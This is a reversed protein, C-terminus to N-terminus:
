TILLCYRGARWICGGGLFVFFRVQEGFIDLVIAQSEGKGKKEGGLEREREREKGERGKGAKGSRLDDGGL